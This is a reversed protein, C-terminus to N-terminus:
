AAGAEDQVKRDLVYVDAEICGSSNRNQVLCMVGSGCLDPDLFLNPSVRMLAGLMNTRLEKICIEEEANYDHHYNRVVQMVEVAIRRTDIVNTIRGVILDKM